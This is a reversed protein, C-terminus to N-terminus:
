SWNAGRPWPWVEVRGGQPTFKFANNLLNFIVQELRSPDAELQPLNPGVVVHLRHGKTQAFHRMTDVAREILEAPRVRERRLQFTGRTIRSSDLLDEVMRALLRVQHEAMTLAWERDSEQGATGLLSLGCDLAALPNRLEHALMALLKNRRTEAEKLAEEIIRKREIAQCMLRKLLEGGTFQKLLYDQGGERATM